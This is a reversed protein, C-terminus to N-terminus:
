ALSLFKCHLPYEYTLFHRLFTKALFDKADKMFIDCMSPIPDTNDKEFSASSASKLKKSPRKSRGGVTSPELERKWRGENVQQEVQRRVNASYTLLVEIPMNGVDGKYRALIDEMSQKLMDLTGSGSAM